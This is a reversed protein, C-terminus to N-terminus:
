ANGTQQCCFEPYLQPDGWQSQMVSVDTDLVKEPAPLYASLCAAALLFKQLFRHFSLTKRYLFGQSLKRLVIPLFSELKKDCLKM